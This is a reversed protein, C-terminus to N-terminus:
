ATKPCTPFCTTSQLEGGKGCIRASVGVSFSISSPRLRVQGPIAPVSDAFAYLPVLMLAGAVTAAARVWSTVLKGREFM